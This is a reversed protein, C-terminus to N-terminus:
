LSLPLELLSCGTFVGEKCRISQSHQRWHPLIGCNEICNNRTIKRTHVPGCSGFFMFYGYLEARGVYEGASEWLDLYACLKLSNM